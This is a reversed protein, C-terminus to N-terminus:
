RIIAVDLRRRSYVTRVIYNQVHGYISNDDRCSWVMSNDKRWINQSWRRKKSNSGASASKKTKLFRHEINTNTILMIYLITWRTYVLKNYNISSIPKYFSANLFYYFHVVIQIYIYLQSFVFYPSVIRVFWLVFM